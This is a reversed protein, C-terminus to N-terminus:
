ALAPRISAILRAPVEYLADGLPNGYAEILYDLQARIGEHTPAVSQEIQGELRWQERELVLAAPTECSGDAETGVFCQHLHAL